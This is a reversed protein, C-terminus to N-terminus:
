SKGDNNEKKIEFHNFVNMEMAKEDILFDKHEQSKVYVLSKEKKPIVEGIKLLGINKEKLIKWHEPTVTAVLQYDEGGFFVWKFPDVKAIQAILQLDKDIFVSDLDIEFSVGSMSAMQYLADALGDSTDMMAMKSKASEIIVRGEKLKPEPMLHSHVLKEKVKKDTNKLAESHELAYLGARSLGSNGTTIVVDGNKANKRTASIFGKLNGIATVSVYVKEAGTIDGGVVKVAYKKCIDSVGKYFEKVFDGEIHSPLSLSILLYEAVGGSAAIDSLNVAIAKYGLQYPNITSLRFHVDEVLTDVTLVLEKEAIYATDDGIYKSSEGLQQKILEIFAKEKM